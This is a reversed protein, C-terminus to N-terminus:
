VICLKLHLLKPLGHLCFALLPYNPLYTLSLVLLNNFDLVDRFLLFSSLSASTLLQLESSLLLMPPLSDSLLRLHTTTQNDQLDDTYEVQTTDKYSVSQSYDMIILDIPM